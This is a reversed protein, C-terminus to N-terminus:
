RALLLALAHSHVLRLGADKAYLAAAASVPALSLYVGQAAGQAQCAAQLPRLAEVGHSAAKWRRCSVLCTEGQRELRFDAAGGELRSVTYGQRAYADQVWDAFDRWGMAAARELTAALQAAGPVRWQRWAAMAAIVLLPFTGLVVMLAQEAPLLARAVLGAVGAILLSLWWPSRLLVAFLSKDSM